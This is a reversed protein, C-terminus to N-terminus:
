ERRPMLAFRQIGAGKALDIVQAVEEYAIGEEGRVFILANAQSKFIERLRIQLNALELREQNLLVTGDDRATLVIDQRPAVPVNSKEEEPANADFGTPYPPRIVLFIIILVLLVDILPTVNMEGKGFGGTMAM